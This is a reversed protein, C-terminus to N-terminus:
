APALQVFPMPGMNQQKLRTFVTDALAPDSNIKTPFAIPDWDNVMRDSAFRINTPKDKMTNQQRRAREMEIPTPQTVRARMM